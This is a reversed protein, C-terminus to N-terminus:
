FDGCAIKCECLGGDTGSFELAVVRFCTHQCCILAMSLDIEAGVKQLLM